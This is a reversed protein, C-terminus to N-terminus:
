NKMVTEDEIIEGDKLRVVRQSYEKATDEDHTVLIITKGETKHLDKLIEMIQEATSSDLNGTPEDALIINPNNALARSISVRQSEGGSLETPKHMTRDQLGVKMLLKDAEVSRLNRKMGGFALALSVNERASLHSVLNFSQFIMGVKHKRYEAMKKRNTKSLLLNDVQINGDDPSDLGGILNLLTSKGSGSKGVISVFEGQDIDLDVNKLAFFSNEGKTYIKSINKVSILHQTTNEQMTLTQKFKNRFVCDFICM